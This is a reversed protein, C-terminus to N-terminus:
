LLDDCTLSVFFDFADVKALASLLPSRITNKCLNNVIFATKLRIKDAMIEKKEAIIAGVAAHLDWVHRNDGSPPAIKYATCLAESVLRYFSGTKNTGDSSQVTVELLEPGIVPIVARTKLREILTFWSEENDLPRAPEVDSADLERTNTPSSM